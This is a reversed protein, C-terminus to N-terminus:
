SVKARVKIKPKGNENTVHFEVERDGFKERIKSKQQELFAAVKARDPPAGNSGSANHAAVLDNYIHDLNNDQRETALPPDQPPPETRGRGRHYRGEEIMRLTRDWYNSYSHFRTALNQCRFRLDTQTIRRNIFVRLQKTLLERDKIPERKEIGAFYQEYRIELQKINEELKTLLHGLRKRDDM